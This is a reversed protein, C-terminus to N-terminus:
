TDQRVIDMILIDHVGPGILKQSVELLARRLADMQSTDTFTGDFGGANAHDFMVQLFADRLKPERRYIADSTGVPIELSLSLVVLSAVHSEKVVPIVFQNNLKVYDFETGAETAGGGHDDSVAEAHMPDPAAADGCPNVSVPAEPGPRLVIGAGVGAGLGILALVIPFLKRM